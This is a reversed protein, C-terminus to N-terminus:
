LPTKSEVTRQGDGTPSGSMCGAEHARGEEELLAVLEAHVGGWWRGSLLLVSLGAPCGSRTSHEVDLRVRLRVLLHGATIQVVVIANPFGSRVFCERRARKTRTGTESSTASLTSDGLDFASASHRHARRPEARGGSTTFCIPGVSCGRVVRRVGGSSAIAPADALELGAASPRRVAFLRPTADRWLWAERM